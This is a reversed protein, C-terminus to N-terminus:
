SRLRLFKNGNFTEQNASNCFSFNLKQFKLAVELAYIYSAGYYRPYATLESVESCSYVSILNLVM